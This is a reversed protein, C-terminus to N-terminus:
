GYRFMYDSSISELPFLLWFITILTSQGLRDIQHIIHCFSCRDPTVFNFLMKRGNILHHFIWFFMLLKVQRTIRCSAIWKSLRQMESRWTGKCIQTRLFISHLSIHKSELILYELDINGESTSFRVWSDFLKFFFSNRNEFTLQPYFIITLRRDPRLAFDIM